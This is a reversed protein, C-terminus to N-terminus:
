AGAPRRGPGTPRDAHAAHQRLGLAPNVNTPSSPATRHSRKSLADLVTELGTLAETEDWVARPDPEGRNPGGGFYELNECIVATPSAHQAHTLM